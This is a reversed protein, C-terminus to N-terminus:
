ISHHATKLTAECTRQHRLQNNLSRGQTQRGNRQERKNLDVTLTRTVDALSVTWAGSDATFHGALVSPESPRGGGIVEGLYASDHLVQATPLAVAVLTATDARRTDQSATTEYESQGCSMSPRFVWTHGGTSARNATGAAVYLMKGGYFIAGEEHM